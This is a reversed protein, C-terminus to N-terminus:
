AILLLGVCVVRSHLHTCYYVESGESDSNRKRCCRSRWTILQISTPKRLRSFERLMWSTTIIPLRGCVPLIRALSISGPLSISSTVTKGRENLSVFFSPRSTAAKRATPGEAKFKNVEQLSAECPRFASLIVDLPHCPSSPDPYRRIARVRAISYTGGLEERIAERLRDELVQSMARIVIRQTQDWEFPGSFIIAVQSKPEIGKEVSKEIVGRSIRAGIDKWNETRRNSPLSAIYREVLPKMAAVDLDGVFLFTFDGADAFRDKYFAMSKDLNWQDVTSATTPRRRLHNGYLAENRTKYFAFDPSAEQNALLAKAQSAQADFAEKDARPATFTLYILQFM